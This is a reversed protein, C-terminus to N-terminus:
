TERDQRPQLTFRRLHRRESPDFDTRAHITCRNDWLLLDGVRWRHTYILEPREQHDFLKALIAASERAELGEVHTTMLRNVYLLTAGTEPHRMAIPHAASPLGEAPRNADRTQAGYAAHDFVHVARRDAVAHQLDAPLTEWARCLNGFMTDGGSGPIEMAYLCGGIAPAATYCQDIHFQMEGDPLSGIYRGDQKLNSVYMMGAPAGEPEHRTAAPRARAGIEGFVRCFRMQAEASLGALGRVVLVLHRGWAARLLRATGDEVPRALDLGVIEAGLAQSLPVVHITDAQMAALICFEGFAGLPAGCGTAVALGAGRRIDPTHRLDESPQIPTRAQMRPGMAGYLLFL